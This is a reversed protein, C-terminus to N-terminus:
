ADRRNRYIYYVVGGFLALGLLGLFPSAKFAKVVGQFAYAYMATSITAGIAVALLLRVIGLGIVRGLIAATLPGGPQFPSAMFLTVGTFALRRVWPKEGLSETAHNMFSSLPKGVVPLKQVLDWNWAFFLTVIMDFTVMFFIVFPPYFGRAVALPVATERGVVPAIYTGLVGLFEGAREQFVIFVGILYFTALAWPLFFKLLTISLEHYKELEMEGIIPLEM